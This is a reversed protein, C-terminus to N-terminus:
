SGESSNWVVAIDGLTLGSDRAVVPCKVKFLCCVNKRTSDSLTEYNGQGKAIVLDAKQFIDLFDATCDNLLLGPADSGAEIVKVINTLGTNEADEITADNLIPSGRVAFIVEKEPMTEIFLRDFVIEGANDGVYLILKSCAIERFLREVADIPLSQNLAEKISIEIDSLLIEKQFGLDIINGAIALRLATEQPHESNAIRSKLQPYLKLAIRNSREKAERYPDDAGTKERILRHIPKAIEPPCQQLDLEPMRTLVERMVEQHIRQDSTHMRLIDLTQRLFCPICDLYTKM